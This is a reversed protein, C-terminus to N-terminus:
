EFYDYVNDRVSKNIKDLLFNRHRIDFNCPISDFEYRPCAKTHPCPAFLHGSYKEKSKFSTSAVNDCDEGESSIDSIDKNQQVPNSIQSLYHRAEQLVQFGANTGNEVLILFGGQASTKRWLTDVINIRELETSIDLLSHSCTVLDYTLLDDRPLHLRFNYGAPLNQQDGKLLSIALDTMNRSSDVCFAEEIDGFVEKVAWISTGVGSGFDLLTIPKYSAATDKQSENDQMVSEGTINNETRGKIDSLIKYMTAYDFAAKGLLYAWAADKDYIICKSQAELTSLKINVLKDTEKQVKTEFEVEDFTSRFEEKRQSDFQRRVRDEIRRRSIKEIREEVGPKRSDLYRRFKKGAELYHSFEDGIDDYLQGGIKGKLIRNINKTIEEPPDIVKINKRRCKLKGNIIADEINSDLHAEPRNWTPWVFQLRKKNKKKIKASKSDEETSQNSYEIPDSDNKVAGDIVNETSLSENGKEEPQEDNNASTHVYPQSSQLHRNLSYITNQWRLFGYCKVKPGSSNPLTSDPHWHQLLTARNYYVAAAPFGNQIVSYRRSTINIAIYKYPNKVPFNGMFPILNM